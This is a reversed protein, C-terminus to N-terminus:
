DAGEHPVARLSAVKGGAAEVEDLLTFFERVQDVVGQGAARLQAAEAPTVVGDAVAARVLEVSRSAELIADTGERELSSTAPQAKGRRTLEWGEPELERKFRHDGSVVFAGRWLWVPKHKRGDTALEHVTAYARGTALALTDLNVRGSKRYVFIEMFLATHEATSM